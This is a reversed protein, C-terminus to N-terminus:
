IYSLASFIILKFYIQDYIVNLSAALAPEIFVPPDLYIEQM